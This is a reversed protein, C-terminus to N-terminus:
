RLSQYQRKYWVAVGYGVGYTGIRANRADM